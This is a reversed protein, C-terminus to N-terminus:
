SKAKLGKCSEEVKLFLEENIWGGLRLAEIQDYVLELDLGRIRRHRIARSLRSVLFGAFTVDYISIRIVRRRHEDYVALCNEYFTKGIERYPFAWIGYRGGHVIKNRARRFSEKLSDSVELLAPYKQFTVPLRNQTSEHIVELVKYTAVFIWPTLYRVTNFAEKTMHTLMEQPTRRARSPDILDLGLDLLGFDQNLKEIMWLETTIKNWFDNYELFRWGSAM